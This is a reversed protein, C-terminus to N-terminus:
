TKDATEQWYAPLGYHEHLQIETERDLTEFEGLEPSTKVQDRTVSVVIERQNWDIERIWHVSALIKRGPLWKRTDILMYHIQWTDPQALLDELHGFTDDMTHIAYRSVEDLSRLKPGIQADDRVDSRVHQEATEESTVPVYGVAPYAMSTWYMPWGYYHVLRSEMQRSVPADAEISPSDEIQQKTLSFTVRENENDISDLSEPSLLVQRGPLWHGTDAVIYRVAWARDDFYFDQIHGIEGDHAQIDYGRIRNLCNLM